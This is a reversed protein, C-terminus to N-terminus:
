LDDEVDPLNLFARDEKSLRMDSLRPVAQAGGQLAADLADEIKNSPARQIAPGSNVRGLDAPDADSFRASIATNSMAARMEKIDAVKAVPADPDGLFDAEEATDFDIIPLNIAQIYGVRYADAYHESPQFWPHLVSAHLLPSLAEDWVEVSKSYIRSDLHTVQVYYHYCLGRAVTRKSEAWNLASATYSTIEALRRLEYILASLDGSGGGMIFFIAPLTRTPVFWTSAMVSSTHQVFSRVDFDDIPYGGSRYFLDLIEPSPRRM